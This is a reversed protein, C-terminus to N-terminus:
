KGFVQKIKELYQFGWKKTPEIYGGEGFENWACIVGIRKTKIPYRDMIEKGARLMTKFSEPTSACVRQIAWPRRDLGASMPILYPLSSHHLIWNWSEQYGALLEAYSSCLGGREYKGSFGRAYHFGSIASYGQNPIHKMVQNEIANACAVFYIGKFGKQVAMKRAETLYAKVTTGSARAGQHLKYPVFIFVVPQGDITLYQPNNFFHELWYAVAKRFIERTCPIPMWPNCWILCFKLRHRNPAKLYNHIAAETSPVGKLTVTRPKGEDTWWWEFVFFDIAYDAAWQIHQQMIAPSNGDYKFGLLPERDPWARGPSRSGPLGMLDNWYKSNKGWAPFYYVGIRYDDGACLTSAFSIIIIFILAALTPKKVM